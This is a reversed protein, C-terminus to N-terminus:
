FLNRSAQNSRIINIVKTYMESFEENFECFSNNALYGVGNIFGRQRRLRDPNCFHQTLFLHDYYQLKAYEHRLLSVIIIVIM